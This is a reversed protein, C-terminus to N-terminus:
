AEIRTVHDSAEPTSAVLAEGLPPLSSPDGVVDILNRRVTFSGESGSVAVAGFDISPPSVSNHGGVVAFAGSELELVMMTNDDVEVEIDRDRWRRIPLGKGSMASVSKAAGLIGTLSHLAYVAMDRVPGGGARYYWTPDVDTLVSGSSRFREEEHGGSATDSFSWYIKGLAGSGALREAYGFVPSLMQGPSAVVKVANESAAKVIDDAEALTVTMTKQVYVHKGARIAEMAQPYHFPIPTALLVADLDVASLMEDFDEYAHQWGFKEATERARGPVVDCCAVTEIREQADSCALHPLIGRQAVSGLGSLGVRVRGEM